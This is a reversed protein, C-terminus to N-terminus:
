LHNYQFSYQVSNFLTRSSTRCYARLCLQCHQSKCIVMKAGCIWQPSRCIGHSFGWPTARHWFWSIKISNESDSKSNLGNQTKFWKSEVRATESERTPQGHGSYLTAVPEKFDKFFIDIKGHGPFDKFVSYPRSLKPIKINFTRSLRRTESSWQMMTVVVHYSQLWCKV